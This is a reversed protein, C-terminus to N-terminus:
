CRLQNKKKLTKKCENKCNCCIISLVLTKELIYSIKPREFKRYKGCTVCYIKKWRKLLQFYKLIRKDIEEYHNPSFFNKYDLLSKGELMLDILGICFYGYIIPEYVQIRYINTIINKNGILKRVETTIHEVWFIDFYIINNGNVYCVILHTGISKFVDTNIVYAADKIKPLSKRSYVGNFKLENQYYKQIEFNTLPNPLM